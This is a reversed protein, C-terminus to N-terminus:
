EVAKAVEDAVCRDDQYQWHWGPQENCALLKRDQEHAVELLLPIREDPECRNTPAFWQWGAKGFCADIAERYPNEECQGTDYHWRGGRDLCSDTKMELKLWPVGYGLILAWGVLSITGM